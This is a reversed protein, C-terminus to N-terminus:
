CGSFFLFLRWILSPCIKSFCGGGMESIPEVASRCRGFGEPRSMKLIENKFAIKENYTSKFCSLAFACGPILVAGFLTGLMVGSHIELVACNATGEAGSIICFTNRGGAM